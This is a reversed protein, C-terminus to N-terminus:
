HASGALAVAAEELRDDGWYLQDGVAVTPIGTVGCGIAADTSARLADKVEQEEVGAEVAERELGCAAAADLVVAPENLPRGECFIIEYLAMTLEKGLSADERGAWVVARLPALAYSEAPWGSPWRVEPLGRERARRSVEEQGVEREGDRMSWPIRGAERLVIGFVIPEWRPAVPLAEDVRHAALYAYPSYLDYFFIPEASSM